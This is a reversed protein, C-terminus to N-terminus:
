VLLAALKELDEVEHMSNIVMRNLPKGHADPYPFSSIIIGRELLVRYANEDDYLFVPIDGSFKIQKARKILNKFFSVNHKLKKLSTRYIGAAHVYAYLLAPSPPSSGAYVPSQRLENIVNKEGLIVGADIGLAKAMSAAVILKVHPLKPISAYIGEGDNGLLGIGHSDDVLLVFEKEAPLQELWDFSYREPYLNNVSNTILLWKDHKEKRINELTEDVWRVYAINPSYPKCIYLAPHTDPAYIVNHSGIYHQVVLQAALYGSSLVIADEAHCRLAIEAEAEGYIALAINNIRSAGYSIGYKEIGQKVLNLFNANVPMGLYATGGFYLFQKGNSDIFRGAASNLPSLSM